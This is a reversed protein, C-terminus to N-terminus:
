VWTVPVQLTGCNLVSLETADVRRPDANAAHAAAIQNLRACLLGDRTSAASLVLGPDLHQRAGRPGHRQLHVRTVRDRDVDGLLCGVLPQDVEAVVGGPLRVVRRLLVM